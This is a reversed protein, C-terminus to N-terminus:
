IGSALFSWWPKKISVIAGNEIDISQSIKANIPIIFFLNAKKTGLVVYVAKGKEESIKIEKLNQILNAKSIADSPLIIIEKKGSKTIIYNKDLEQVVELNTKVNIEGQKIIYFEGVKEIIIENGTPKPTELTEQNKSKSENKKVIDATSGGGGGGSGGGDSPCVGCDQSCSSCTEGNNCISDGCYTCKYTSNISAMYLQAYIPENPYSISVNKQDADSSDILAITGYLDADKSMAPNSALIINDWQSDSSWTRIIDDIGIGDSSTAGPETTVILVNYQNNSDKEEIIIVAPDYVYPGEPSKLYLISDSGSTRVLAYNVQGSSFEIYDGPNIGLTNINIDSYGNGNPIKLSATANTNIILPKYFAVKAGKSTQITPYVIKVNSEISDPYNLVVSGAECDTGTCAYTLAYVRGGITIIGSGESTMTADFTNTSDFVDTFKVYDSAFGSSSNTLTSLKLLYGKDENGVIVYENRLIAGGEIVTINRGEDGSQLEMGGNTWNKIYNFAAENGRNNIFRIQMKDDGNNRIVINERNILNTDPINLGASFDLKFTKFVPDTFSNGPLLADNDSDKASVTISIITTAATGGNIYVNTGDVISEENGTAVASGSTLTIKDPSSALITATYKQNNSDAANVTIIIGNVKKSYGETIEKQETTGDEATVAITAAITSATILEVNYNANNITVTSSTTGTSDFSLKYASDLLVLKTSDTEPSILYKKGSLIIEQSKSDPNTFDVPANFTVTMNYIYNTTSTSLGFGYAPDNSSTPQKAFVLKPYSGLTITQTYISDVNGSFSGHKLITPLETATLISKVKNISDNVNIKSSGTYLPVTEPSQNQSDYKRWTISWYDINAYDAYYRIKFYRGGIIVEGYGESTILVNYLDGTLVDQFKVLDNTFGSTSNIIQTLKMLNFTGLDDGIIFYQNRRISDGERLIVTQGKNQLELVKNKIDNSLKSCKDVEVTGEPFIGASPLEGKEIPKEKEPILYKSILGIAILLFILILVIIIILKSYNKRNGRKM